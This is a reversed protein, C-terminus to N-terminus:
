AKINDILTYLLQYDIHLRMSNRTDVLDLVM